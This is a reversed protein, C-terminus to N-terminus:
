RTLESIMKERRLALFDNYKETTIHVNKTRWVSDRVDWYNCIVVPHENVGPSAPCTIIQQPIYDNTDLKNWTPLSKRYLIFERALELTIM